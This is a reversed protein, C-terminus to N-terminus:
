QKISLSTKAIAIAINDDDGNNYFRGYTDVVTNNSMSMHNM